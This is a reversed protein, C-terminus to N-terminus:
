QKVPASVEDPTKITPLEGPKMRRVGGVVIIDGNDNVDLRPRANLLDYVDQQTIEGDPNIISYIFMQAGSQYIVHLNSKRDLQAEPQSFSVMPGIASVKFIRTRSQNSVLVYMRLQQRLYNAEELIYKRVEPPRNTVDAPMPVGFDRSWLEAGDIIDFAMPLSSFDKDWEKIHVTAVLRYRGANKLGFYPALNMKKTAIQSSDLTFADIVPPESNKQVVFNGDAPQINFRLWNEDAGLHLTQGSNNIVRVTAPLSEGPLFQDQDLKVEVSVVQASARFFTLATLIFISLLFRM